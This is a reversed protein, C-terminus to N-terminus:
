LMCLWSSSVMNHWIWKNSLVVVLIISWFVIRHIISISVSNYPIHKLHECKFWGKLYFPKMEQGQMCSLLRSTLSGDVFLLSPSNLVDIVKQYEGCEWPPHLKKGFCRHYIFLHVDLWSHPGDTYQQEGVLCPFLSFSLTPCFSLFLPLCFSPSFFQMECHCEKGGCGGWFCVTVEMEQQGEWLNENGRRHGWQRERLVIVSIATIIIIIIIIIIVPLLVLSSFHCSCHESTNFVMYKSLLLFSSWLSIYLIMMYIIYHYVIHFLLIIISSINLLLLLFM